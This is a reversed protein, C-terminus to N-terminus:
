AVPPKYIDVAVDRIRVGQDVGDYKGDFVSSLWEIARDQGNEIESVHDGIVNREYLVSANYRKYSAIHNDTDVIPTMNDGVAKYVFLPINPAGHYGLTWEVARIKRLIKSEDLDAQGNLFYGYIDQNAFARFARASDMKRGELFIAANQPGDTRLRSRIYADAEPYENMIGLLIIILNGAFPTKNVVSYMSGVDSVLGGLAAGLLGASLEPAYQVQLEAAKESALSGGSYGWLAYKLRSADSPLAVDDTGALSLVARLADLTAHGALVTAGFAAHPGEFDPTLVFWGRGLM